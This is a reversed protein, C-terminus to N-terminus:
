NQGILYLTIIVWAFVSGKSTLAITFQLGCRVDIIFHDKLTEVLKPVNINGRQGIGLIKDTNNGWIYM